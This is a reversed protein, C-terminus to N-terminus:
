ELMSGNSLVVKRIDARIATVVSGDWKDGKQLNTEKGNLDVIRAKGNSITLVKASHNIQLLDSLPRSNQQSKAVKNIADANAELNDEIAILRENFKKLDTAEIRAEVDDFSKKLDIKLKDIDGRLYNFQERLSSIEIVLQNDAQHQIANQAASNKKEGSSFIALLALFVIFLLAGAIVFILPKPIGKSKSQSKSRREPRIEEESESSNESYDPYLPEVGSEPSSGQNSIREAVSIDDTTDRAFFQDKNNEM